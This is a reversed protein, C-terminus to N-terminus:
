STPHLSTMSVNRLDPARDGSGPREHLRALLNRLLSCGPPKRRLQRMAITGLAKFEDEIETTAVFFLLAGRCPSGFPLGASMAGSPAKTRHSQTGTKRRTQRKERLDCSHAVVMLKSVQQSLRTVSRAGAHSDHLHDRTLYMPARHRACHPGPVGATAFLRRHARGRRPRERVLRGTRGDEQRRYM